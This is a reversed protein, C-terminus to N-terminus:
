RGNALRDIWGDMIGGAMWKSILQKIWGDTRRDVGKGIQRDMQRGM